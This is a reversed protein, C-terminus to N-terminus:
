RDRGGGGLYGNGEIMERWKEGSVPVKEIGPVRLRRLFEARLRELDAPRGAALDRTEYPDRAADFLAEIRFTAHFRYLLDGSRLRWVPGEATVPDPALLRGPWGAAVVLVATALLAPLLAKRL